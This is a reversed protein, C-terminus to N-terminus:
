SKGLILDVVWCGRVHEGPQRCHNLVDADTCGAEELADALIPLRDFVRREYVNRALKSVTGDNWGLWSPELVVPRFPNGFLERLISAQRAAEERRTVTTGWVSTLTVAAANAADCAAARADACVTARATDWAGAWARARAEARELNATEIRAQRQVARRQRNRFDAHMLKRAKALTRRDVVGEAFQEAAIVADRSCRETMLFWVRRACICAFLRLKRDSPKRAMPIPTPDEKDYVFMRLTRGSPRAQMSMLMAFPDDCNLWETDTMHM